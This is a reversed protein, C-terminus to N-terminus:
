VAPQRSATWRVTTGKGRTSVIDVEGGVLAARERLGRLGFHGDSEERAAGDRDFGVGDDTVALEVHAPGGTLQVDVESASAHKAVNHLIEGLAAAMQQTVTPHADVAQVASLRAPVGTQEQWRSLVEGVVEVTPRDSQGERLSVLLTRAERAAQDASDALSAAVERALAPDGGVTRCLAQAGLSIGHLTKGVSDHMDRALRAREDAAGVEAVAEAVEHRADILAAVNRRVLAGITSFSLVLAPSGALLALWDPWAEPTSGLVAAPVGLSGVALPVVLVVLARRPFLLGAVLASCIVTLAAPQGVGISFLLALTVAVDVSALLPHRILVRILDDSRSFVLSSVALLCLSVAATPSVQPGSVGAPAALLLCVLRATFVWRVLRVYGPDAVLAEAALAESPATM